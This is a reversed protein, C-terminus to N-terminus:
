RGDPGRGNATALLTMYDSAEMRKHYLEVEEDTLTKTVAEMYSALQDENAGLGVLTYTLDMLMSVRVHSSVKGWEESETLAEMYEDDEFRSVDITLDSM